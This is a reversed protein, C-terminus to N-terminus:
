NQGESGRDFNQTKVICLSILGAGGLCSELM